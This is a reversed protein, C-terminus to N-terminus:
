RYQRRGLWECLGGAVVLLCGWALWATDYGWRVAAVGFLPPAASGGFTFVLLCGVLLGSHSLTSILASGLGAVIFGPGVLVAEDWGTRDTLRGAYVRSAAAVTGGMVLLVSGWSARGGGALVTDPIFTTSINPRAFGVLMLVALLFVGGRHSPPRTGSGPPTEARACWLALVLGLAATCCVVLLFSWRRDMGLAALLGFGGALAVAGPKASQFWGFSVGHDSTVRQALIRGVSMQITSSGVGSTCLGLVLLPLSTALGTVAGGATILILSIGM